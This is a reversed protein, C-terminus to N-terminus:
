TTNLTARRLSGPEGAFVRLTLSRGTSQELKDIERDRARTSFRRAITCTAEAERAGAALAARVGRDAVDLAADLADTM